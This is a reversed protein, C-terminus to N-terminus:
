GQHDARMGSELRMHNQYAHRMQRQQQMRSMEGRLVMRMVNDKTQIERAMAKGEASDLYSNDQREDIMAQLRERQDLLAYFMDMEQKELFSVMENTLFRYDKWLREM